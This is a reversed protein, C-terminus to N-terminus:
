TGEGIGLAAAAKSLAELRTDGDFDRRVPGYDVTVTWCNVHGGPSTIGVHPSVDFLTSLAESERDAGDQLGRLAEARGRAEASAIAAAIRELMNFERNLGPGHPGGPMTGARVWEEGAATLELASTQAIVARERHERRVEALTRTM